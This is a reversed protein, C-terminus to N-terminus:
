LALFAVVVAFLGAFSGGVTLGSAAGTSAPAGDTTTTTSNEKDTGTGEEEEAGDSGTPAPSSDTGSADDDGSPSPSFKDNICASQCKEYKESDETSGDGQPCAAVCETTNQTDEETPAPSGLCDAECTVDSCKELCEMVEPPYSSTATPIPISSTKSGEQPLAAVAAVLSAAFLIASFKM